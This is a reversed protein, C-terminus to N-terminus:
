RFDTQFYPRDLGDVFIRRVAIGTNSDNKMQFHNSGLMLQPPYNMGPANMASNALIFGDSEFNQSLFNVTQDCEVRFIGNHYEYASCDQPSGPYYEAHDFKGEEYFYCMCGTQEVNYTGVGIIDKWTPDLTPFWNVGKRYAKAIKGASTWCWPSGGCLFNHLNQFANMKSTYFNLQRAVAGLGVADSGDATYTAFGNPNALASGIFRPTVTGDDVGSTNTSTEIGYFVANNDTAMPAMSQVASTTLEAEVGTSAFSALIPFGAAVAGECAYDIIGGSLGLLVALSGVVGTRNIGEAGPGAGLNKCASILADSIKFPYQTLTNAVYAGQHPTGFTILGNYARGGIPNNLNGMTRSVLGGM